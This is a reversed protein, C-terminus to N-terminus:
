GVLLLQAADNAQSFDLNKAGTQYHRNDDNLVDIRNENLQSNSSASARAILRTQTATRNFRKAGFTQQSSLHPSPKTGTSPIKPIEGSNFSGSTGPAIMFHSSNNGSDTMKNVVNQDFRKIKHDSSLPRNVNKNISKTETNAFESSGTGERIFNPSEPPRNGRGLLM